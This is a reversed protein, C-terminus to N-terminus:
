GRMHLFNNIFYMLLLFLGIGVSVLALVGMFTLKGGVFFVAQVNGIMSVLWAALSGWVGLVTETEFDNDSNDPNDPNDSNVRGPVQYVNKDVQSWLTDNVVTPPYEKVYIWYDTIEYSAYPNGYEWCAFQYPSDANVRVFGIQGVDYVIDTQSGRKVAYCDGANSFELCVLKDGSLNEFSVNQADVQAYVHYGSVDIITGYNNLYPYLYNDIAGTYQTADFRLYSWIARSISSDVIEFPYDPVYLFGFLSAFPEGDVLEGDVPEGKVSGSLGYVNTGVDLYIRSVAILRSGYQYTFYAPTTNSFLVIDYQGEATIGLSALTSETFPSYRTFELFCYGALDVNEGTFYNTAEPAAVTQVIPEFSGDVYDASAGVVLLSLLMVAIIVAVMIKKIM